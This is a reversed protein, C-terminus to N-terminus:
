SGCDPCRWLSFGGSATLQMSNAWYTERRQSSRRFIRCKCRIFISCAPGVLNILRWITLAEHRPYWPEAVAFCSLNRMYIKTIWSKNVFPPIGRISLGSAEQLLNIKDLHSIGFNRKVSLTVSNRLAVFTRRLSNDVDVYWGCTFGTSLILPTRFIIIIEKRSRSGCRASSSRESLSWSRTYCPRNMMPVEDANKFTPRSSSGMLERCRCQSEIASISDRLALIM